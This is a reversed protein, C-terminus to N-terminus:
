LSGFLRGKPHLLVTMKFLSKVHSRIVSLIGGSQLLAGEIKVVFGMVLAQSDRAHGYALWPTCLCLVYATAQVFFLTGDHPHPIICVFEDFSLYHIM